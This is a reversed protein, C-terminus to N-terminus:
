PESAATVVPDALTGAIKETGRPTELTLSLDRDFSISGHLASTRGSRSLGGSVIRLTRSAVTGKGTWRDFPLPAPTSVADTKVSAAVPWAGNQWTFSFEGTASGALDAARYGNLALTTDANIEGPGWNEGLLQAAQSASAGTLRTKLKWRPTGDEIRM